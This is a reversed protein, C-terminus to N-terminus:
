STEQREAARLGRLARGTAAHMMAAKLRASSRRFTCLADVQEVHWAILDNDEIDRELCPELRDLDAEASEWAKYSKDAFSKQSDRERIVRLVADLGSSLVKRAEEYQDIM